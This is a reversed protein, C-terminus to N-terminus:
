WALIALGPSCEVDSEDGDGDDDDDDDDSVCSLFLLLM